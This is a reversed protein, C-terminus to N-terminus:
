LMKVTDMIIVVSIMMRTIIALRIMTRIITIVLIIMHRPVIMYMHRLIMM